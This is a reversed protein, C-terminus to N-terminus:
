SYPTQNGVSTFKEAVGVGGINVAYWTNPMYTGLTDQIRFQETVVNSPATSGRISLGCLCTLIMLVFAANLSIDNGATADNNVNMHGWTGVVNEDLIKDLKEYFTAMQATDTQVLVAFLSAVIINNLPNTEYGAAIRTAYYTLNRDIASNNRNLYNNFYHSNYYAHLVIQNDMIDIPDGTYAADYKVVDTHPGSTFTPYQLRLVLNSWERKPIYGLVYCAEITHKLAVIAMYVTFAQDTSLISGLGVTNPMSYVNPATNQIYSTLFDAVNRMLIFGFNQLWERDLTVRYYNWTNFSILANNFVHLPSIVDWYVSQYGVIDNKYPFKSGKYGFSASLQMAQELNRYRFELLVRAISPKLFILLPTLWLDGDFFVNGNTDVYSLNLPNIQTNVADRLCAYIQFLSYRIFFKVRQLRNEEGATIGSKALLEVDSKWMSQWTAANDAAVTTVLDAVNTKKFAINLLIRKVEEMPEKFDYASMQASLVHFTIGVNSNVDTFRHKQYCKSRDSFSNFGLNTVNSSPFLYCAAGALQTNVSKIIGTANLMYLGKDAYISENYIVNNNYTAELIGDAAVIEHFIDLQGLNSRPTINVTQLTCYPYQRLPTISHTLDVVPKGPATIEFATTVQSTEMNLSQHVLAYAVNSGTNSYLQVDHMRFGELTNNKYKGIQDFQVNGSILTKQAGVNSMGVYMAIKGNGTIVGLGTTQNSMSVTWDGDYYLNSLSSM